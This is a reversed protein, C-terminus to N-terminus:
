AGAPPPPPFFENRMAAGVTFEYADGSLAIQSFPSVPDWACNLRIVITDGPAGFGGVPNGDPDTVVIDGEEMVKDFLGSSSERIVQIVARQRDGQSMPDLNSRGTIAYRAGERVAHQMTLQVYGFIAFDLMTIVVLLFLGMCIALEVAAVGAQRRALKFGARISKRM